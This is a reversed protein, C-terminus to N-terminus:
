KPVLLLKEKSKFGALIKIQKKFLKSFFKVIEQNAKNKEPAAKVNIRLAQKNKDFDKIETKSSNPRVIIKLKNNKIYDYINKM